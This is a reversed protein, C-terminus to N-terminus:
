KKAKGPWIEVCNGAVLSLNIRESLHREKETWWPQPQRGGWVAVSCPRDPWDFGALEITTGDDLELVVSEGEIQRLAGASDSVFIKM